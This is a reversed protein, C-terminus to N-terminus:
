SGLCWTFGCARVEGDATGGGSEVLLGRGVLIRSQAFVARAVDDERAGKEVCVIFCYGTSAEQASERQRRGKDKLLPWAPKWVRTERLWPSGLM